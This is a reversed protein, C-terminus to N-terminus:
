DLLVSTIEDQSDNGLQGYNNRGWGWLIGDCSLALRAGFSSKIDCINDLLKNTEYNNNYNSINISSLTGDKQIAYVYDQQSTSVDFRSVNTFIKLIDASAGSDKYQIDYLDGNELLAIDRNGYNEVTKIDAVHDLFKVPEKNIDLKWLEGRENIFSLNLSVKRAQHRELIGRDDESLGPAYISGDKRVAIVTNWNSGEDTIFNDVNGAVKKLVYMGEDVMLDGNSKLIYMDGKYENIEIQKVWFDNSTGEAYGTLCSITFFLASFLFSILGKKM